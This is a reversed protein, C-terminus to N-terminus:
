DVLEWDDESIDGISIMWQHDKGNRHISLIEGKLFCYCDEEWAKKAVKKGALIKFGWKPSVMGNPM